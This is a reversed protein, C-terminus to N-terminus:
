QSYNHSILKSKQILKIYHKMEKKSDVRNENDKSPIYTNFNDNNNIINSISTPFNYGYYENEGNLKAPKEAAPLSKIAKYYSELFEKNESEVKAAVVKGKQDIILKPYVQHNKSIDDSEVLSLDVHNYLYNTIYNYNCRNLGDYNIENVCESFIPPKYGIAKNNCKIVAKGDINQIIVLNYKCIPDLEKINILNLEFRKFADKLQLNLPKNSTNTSFSNINKNKDITFQIYIKTKWESFKVAKLTNQTIYKSFHLTIPNDLSTPESEAKQLMRKELQNYKDVSDNVFLLSNGSSSSNRFVMTKHSSKCSVFIVLGLMSILYQKVM